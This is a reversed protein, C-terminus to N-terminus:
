KEGHHVAVKLDKKRWLLSFFDCSFFPFQGKTGFRVTFTLFDSM